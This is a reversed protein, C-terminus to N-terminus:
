GAPVAEGEKQPTAKGKACLWGFHVCAFWVISVSSALFIAATLAVMVWALVAWAQHEGAPHIFRDGAGNPGTIVGDNWLAFKGTAARNSFETPIKVTSGVVFRFTTVLFPSSALMFIGPGSVAIHRNERKEVDDARAITHNPGQQFVVLPKERRHVLSYVRFRATDGFDFYATYDTPLTVSTGNFVAGAADSVFSANLHSLSPTHWITLLCDRCDLTVQSHTPSLIIQLGEGSPISYNARNPLTVEASYSRGNHVYITSAGSTGSLNLLGKLACRTLSDNTINPPCSPFDTGSAAVALLLALM